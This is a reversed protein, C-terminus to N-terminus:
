GADAKGRVHVHQLGAVCEERGVSDLIAGVDFAPTKYRQALSNFLQTSLFLMADAKYSDVQDPPNVCVGTGPVYRGHKGVDRDFVGVVRERLWPLLTLFMTTSGGAGYIAIRQMSTFKERLIKDIKEIMKQRLRAIAAGTFLDVKIPVSSAESRRRYAVLLVNDERFLHDHDFGFSHMLGDLSARHFYSQHQHFAGYHPVARTFGEANPVEILVLGGPCVVDALREVARDPEAFHELTHFLTVVDFTVDPFAATIFNGAVTQDAQAAAAASVAIDSVWREKAGDICGVFPNNGGGVDLITRGIFFGEGFREKFARLRDDHGASNDEVFSGDEYFRSVFDPTMTQLQLHGCKKCVFLELDFAPHPPKGTPWLSVPVAPICGVMDGESGRCVRCRTLGHPADAVLSVASTM